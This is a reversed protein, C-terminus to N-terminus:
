IHLDILGTQPHIEAVGIGYNREFNIRNSSVNRVTELNNRPEQLKDLSARHALLMGDASM